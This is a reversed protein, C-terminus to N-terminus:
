IGEIKIAIIASVYAIVAAVYFGLRKLDKGIPGGKSYAL